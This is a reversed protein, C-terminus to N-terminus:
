RAGGPGWHCGALWEVAVSRSARTQTGPSVRKRKWSAYVKWTELRTLQRRERALDSRPGSGDPSACRRRSSRPDGHPGRCGVGVKGCRRQSPGCGFRSSGCCDDDCDCLQACFGVDGILGSEEEPFRCLGGNGGDDAPLNGCDNLAGFWCPQLQDTPWHSSRVAQTPFRSRQTRQPPHVDRGAGLLVRCSLRPGLGLRQLNPVAVGRPGSLRVERTV